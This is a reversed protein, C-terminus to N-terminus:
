KELLPAVSKFINKAMREAGKATPHIQDDQMMGKQNWLGELVFPLFADGSNKAVVPYMATFASVYDRGYNPPLTIGAILVKSGSSKLRAALQALHDRTRLLSIGRLGDNGGIELITVKPKLELVTSIRDLAGQTTDGSIGLNVVRYKYGAEDVLKQLVDPYTTGAELGYGATISDGFCAIVPRPDPPAEAMAPKEIPVDRLSAEPAPKSGCGGLTLFCITVFSFYSLQRVM